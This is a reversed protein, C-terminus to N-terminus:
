NLAMVWNASEPFQPPVMGYRALLSDIGHGTEPDITREIVAVGPVQQALQQALGCAEHQAMCIMAQRAGVRAGMREFPVVVYATQM